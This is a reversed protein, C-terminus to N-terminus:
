LSDACIFHVMTSVSLSGYPIGEDHTNCHVGGNPRFSSLLFIIDIV